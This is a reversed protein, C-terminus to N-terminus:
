ARAVAVALAVIIVGILAFVPDRINMVHYCYLGHSDVLKARFLAFVYVQNGNDDIDGESSITLTVSGDRRSVGLLVAMNM